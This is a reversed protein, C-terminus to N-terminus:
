LMYEFHKRHIHVAQDEELPVGAYRGGGNDSKAKANERRLVWRLLAALIGVLLMFGACVTM